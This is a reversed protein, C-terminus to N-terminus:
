RASTRRQDHITSRLRLIGAVSVTEMEDIMGMQWRALMQARTDADIM